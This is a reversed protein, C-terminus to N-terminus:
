SLPLTALVVKASASLPFLIEFLIFTLNLGTTKRNMNYLLLEPPPSHHPNGKRTVPKIAISIMRYQIGNMKTSHFVPSEGTSLTNPNANLFHIVAADREGGRENSTGGVFGSM